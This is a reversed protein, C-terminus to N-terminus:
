YNETVVAVLRVKFPGARLLGALEQLRGRAVPSGSGARAGLHLMGRRTIRTRIRSNAIWRSSTPARSTGSSSASPALM